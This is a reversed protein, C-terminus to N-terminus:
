WLRTIDYSDFAVDAGVVALGSRIAQAIIMRDFPDRHLPNPFPLKEYEVCDAITIPLVKVGYGSLTTTLFSSFPVSLGMKKIGLKVAIEWCSAMSVWLTNSSDALLATATGSLNPSGDALWLLTHTDLLLTV